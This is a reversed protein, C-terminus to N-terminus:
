YSDSNGDSDLNAWLPRGFTNDDSDSYNVTQNTLRLWRFKNGLIIIICNAIETQLKPFIERWFTLIEDLMWTEVIFYISCMSNNISKSILNKQTICLINPIPLKNMNVKLLLMFDSSQKFFRLCDKRLKFAIEGKVFTLPKFWTWIQVDFTCM